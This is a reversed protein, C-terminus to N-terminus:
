FLSDSRLFFSFAVLVFACQLCITRLVQHIFDFQEEKFDHERELTNMEDSKTCVVIIPVGVNEALMGEPLPLVDGGEVTTSLGTSSSSGPEVYARIFAEHRERGEEREWEPRGKWAGTIFALDFFL